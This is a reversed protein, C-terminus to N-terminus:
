RRQIVRRYVLVATIVLLVGLAVAIVLTLLDLGREVAEPEVDIALATPSTHATPQANSTPTVTTKPTASAVPTRLNLPRAAVTEKLWPCDSFLSSESVALYPVQDCSASVRNVILKGAELWSPVDVQLEVNRTEGPQLDGLEWVVDQEGALTGGSTSDDLLPQTGIPVTDTLIVNTVSVAGINSIWLSYRQPSGSCIPDSQDRLTLYLYPSVGDELSITPWATPTATPIDTPTPTQTPLPTAAPTATRPANAVQLDRVLYDEYALQAGSIVVRLRLTYIGDPIQTTDWFALRGDEVPIDTASIQIWHAPDAGAGFAVTYSEMDHMDATGLISVVGGLVSGSAPSAISVPQPTPEPTQADAPYAFVVSALLLLLPTVLRLRM